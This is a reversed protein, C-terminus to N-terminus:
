KEELEYFHKIRKPVEEALKKQIGPWARRGSVMQPVSIRKIPEIDKRDESKRQFPIYQVKDSSKAGTPLLMYPSSKSTHVGKKRGKRSKKSNDVQGATVTQGRVVSYRIRYKEMPVKPNLRFHVLTLPRGRYHFTLTSIDKGTAYISVPASRAKTKSPNVESKKINYQSAVESSIWGPVRRKLDNMTMKLAKGAREQISEIQYTLEAFDKIEITRNGNSKAM